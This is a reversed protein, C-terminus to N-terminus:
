TIVDPWTCTKLSMQSREQPSGMSPLPVPHQTSLWAPYNRCLCVPTQIGRRKKNVWWLGHALSQVEEGHYTPNSTVELVIPHNLKYIRPISQVRLTYASRKGWRPSFLCVSWFPSDQCWILSQKSKMNKYNWLNVQYFSLSKRLADYSMSLYHSKLSFSVM